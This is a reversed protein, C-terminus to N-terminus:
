IHVAAGDTRRKTSGPSSPASSIVAFLARPQRRILAVNLVRVAAPMIFLAHLLVANAFQLALGCKNMTHSCTMNSSVCRGAVAIQTVFLVACEYTVSSRGRRCKSLAPFFACM